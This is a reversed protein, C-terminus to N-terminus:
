CLYSLAFTVKSEDDSYSLNNCFYLNCLLIFSNLQCPHSGDFTDPEKAMSSLCSVMDHHRLEETMLMIAGTLDATSQDHLHDDSFLSSM